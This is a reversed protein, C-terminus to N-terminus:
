ALQLAPRRQTRELKRDAKDRREDARYQRVAEPHESRWADPRLRAYDTEGALLHEGGDVRDAALFLDGGLDDRPSPVVHEGESLVMAFQQGVPAEHDCASRSVVDRRACDTADDFDFVPVAPKFRPRVRLGANGAPEVAAKLSVPELRDARDNADALLVGAFRRRRAAHDATEAALPLPEGAVNADVPPDRVRELPREVRGAGFGVAADAM